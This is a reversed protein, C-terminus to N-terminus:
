ARAAENPAVDVTGNGDVTIECGCYEVTVCISEPESGEILRALADTEVTRSLPPLDTADRGTRVAVDHIVEFIWGTDSSDDVVAM